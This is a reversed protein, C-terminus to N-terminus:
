SRGGSLREMVRRLDAALASHDVGYAEPAARVVLDLPPVGALAPLLM